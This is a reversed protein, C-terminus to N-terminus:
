PNKALTDSILRRMGAITDARLIAVGPILALWRIASPSTQREILVGKYTRLKM